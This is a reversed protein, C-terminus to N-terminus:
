RWPILRTWVPMSLSSPNIASGLRIMIEYGTVVGAILEKTSVRSLEAGALAAPIIVVGPHLASFRHGDDMDLAHGCAANALAANIAPFKKKTQLITAEPTGGLHELYSVMMRPFEMLKYGALSVGILDLILKKAQFVVEPKLRDYQTDLIFDAYSSSLHDM